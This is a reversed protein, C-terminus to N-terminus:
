FSFAFISRKALFHYQGIVDGSTPKQPAAYYIYYIGNGLKPHLLLGFQWRWTLKQKQCFYCIKRNTSGDSRAQWQQFFKVQPIKHTHRTTTIDFIFELLQSVGKFDSGFGM